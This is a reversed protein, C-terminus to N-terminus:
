RPNTRAMSSESCPAGCCCITPLERRRWARESDDAEQVVAAQQMMLDLQEDAHGDRRQEQESGSDARLNKRLENGPDGADNEIAAERHDPDHADGRREANEVVHVAEAGADGRDGGSKEGNGGAQVPLHQNLVSPAAVSPAASPNRRQFKLGALIKMPSPPAINRPKRIAVSPKFIRGSPTANGQRM